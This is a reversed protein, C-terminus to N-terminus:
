YTLIKIFKQHNNLINDITYILVHHLQALMALLAQNFSIYM